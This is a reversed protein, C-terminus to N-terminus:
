KEIWPNYAGGSICAFFIGKDDSSLENVVDHIKQTDIEAIHYYNGDKQIDYDPLKSELDASTRVVYNKKKTTNDLSFEENFDRKLHVNNAKLDLIDQVLAHATPFEGAGQGNFTLKGITTGRLGVFNYNDHIGTEIQGPTYLTPEVVFNFSNNKKFSRGLLKVILNHKKFYKIDDDTINRIGFKLLHDGPKVFTNYAIDVSICLKNEIDYGDIDASPDAEAYGLDQADKLVEDFSQGTRTMTDLIYNSTGNLIGHISDIQDIRLARELNIIWPIGGGVASEFYFKVGNEEAIEDFEKLNRAVVAKNATVVNKGHKLADIIMTKAPELGGIVEVVVDVEEDNLITAYDDVFLENQDVKEPRVFVYKVSLDKEFPHLDSDQIIKLVGSGVTGHGLIAIKM